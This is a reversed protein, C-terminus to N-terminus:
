KFRDANWDKFIDLQMDKSEKWDAPVIRRSWPPYGDLSLLLEYEKDPDINGIRMNTTGVKRNDFYVSAGSPRSRVLLTGLPKKALRDASEKVVQDVVGLARGIQARYVIGLVILVVVLALALWRFLKRGLNGYYFDVDIGSEVAPNDVFPGAQPQPQLLSLPEPQLPPPVPRNRHPESAESALLLKQMIEASPRPQPKEARKSIEEAFLQKIYRSLTQSSAEQPLKYLVRSIALRMQAASQYREAPDRALAKFVIADLEPPLRSNIRSPTPVDARKVRELTVVETGGAFLRELTLMEYLLIGAAFVDSRADVPQGLAQEPSMYGFKGKIIGAETAHARSAARAIGFDVLKVEGEFSVLVNQPSVDRHVINLPRGQDDTKRHAYDLGALIEGAIFLAHPVSLPLNKDLGADLLEGLNKGDVFDMSIFYVGDIQGLEFVPVINGHTLTSCIKAEDIFMDIFERHRAYQPLIQKVVMNKEFGDVGYLKAKYIEAMGGVAIREYLYYKGFPTPKFM